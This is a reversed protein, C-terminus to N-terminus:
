TLSPQPKPFHSKLIALPTRYRLASHLRRRNYFTELYDFVALRAHAFSDFPQQDPLLEHKLSAFASEPFANDYCCGAASRSQRLGAAALAARTTAATYQSGQDSHFPEPLSWAASPRASAALLSHRLDADGRHHDAEYADFWEPLLAQRRTGCPQFATFWIPKL